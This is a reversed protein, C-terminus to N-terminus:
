GTGILTALDAVLTAPPVPKIRVVLDPFRDALPAPLSVGSQLILPVGRAMLYEVVPWADGDMLNFDLIAAVVPHANLLALAEDSSSAPGVVEGGADKIAFVLDLAIFPEDEAVLIAARDLL